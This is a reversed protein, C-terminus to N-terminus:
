PIWESPPALIFNNFPTATDVYAGAAYLDKLPTIAPTIVLNNGSLGRVRVLVDTAAPANIGMVMILNAFGHEIDVFLPTSEGAEGIITNQWSQEGLLIGTGYGELNNHDFMSRHTYYCAIAPTPHSDGTGHAVNDRFTHHNQQGVVGDEGLHAISMKAFYNNTIRWWSCDDGNAIDKFGRLAVMTADTSASRAVFGVNEVNLFNVNPAYIGYSIGPKDFYMDFDRFEFGYGNIFMSQQSMDIYRSPPIAASTYLYSTASLRPHPLGEYESEMSQRRYSRHLGRMVVPRTRLFDLAASGIDHGGPLLIIEGTPVRSGLGKGTKANVVAVLDDYAAQISRMAQGPSWGNQTNIGDNPDVYRQFVEIADTGSGSTGPPGQPGEPGQLAILEEVNFQSADVVALREALRTDEDDSTARLYDLFNIIGSM